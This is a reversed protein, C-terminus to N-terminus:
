SPPKRRVTGNAFGMSYARTIEDLTVGCGGLIMSLGLEDGQKAVTHFGAERLKAVFVPPTIDDLLKVAPINLSNALAFEATVPGNFHEDYNTPEYGGFNTPVDNLKAKPTILGRDFALAYLLPKLASGPSRVARVGDVQGGDYANRFDASGVYGEVAGTQNNLVLVAANHINQAKIRAVYQRVLREAAAQVAPRISSVIIPVDPQEARLRLSLHPALGPATRRRANLPEALADQIAQEDFTGSDGFRRLWVNRAQVIAANQEGLRLSSPRNPIIALATIEALSLLQPPKGFYLLSASKIGEVNGGYPVLNLYLQLIEDKSLHIELQVARVAEILKSLYTRPRPELLRVVQMTITSAGATRRGRVINRGAARLMSVPNLGPHWYFWRDEKQLITQRMRPTIEQLTAYIRWKDDRSLFAHLTSGDAATVLTSYPVHLPPPFRKDLLFLGLLTGLLWKPWRHTRLYHLLSPVDLRRM